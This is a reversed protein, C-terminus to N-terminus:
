WSVELYLRKKWDMSANRIEFRDDVTLPHLFGGPTETVLNMSTIAVTTSLILKNDLCIYPLVFM